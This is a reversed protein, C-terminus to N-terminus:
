SGATKNSVGDQGFMMESISVLDGSPDAGALSWAKVRRFYLQADSEVTFGVGGLVHIAATAAEMSYKMATLFAMLMLPPAGNPEYDAFWSAKRVLMRVAALGSHVDALRHSIAQFSGIPVGFASRDLGYQVALSLAGEGIGVLAASTLLKWELRAETILRHASDGEAITEQDTCDALSRFALPASGINKALNPPKSWSAIILKGQCLGLIADALAGAPILQESEDGTVSLAVTALRGDELVRSMETRGGEAGSRALLRSAVASEVFPVPALHRGCQEAVLCLDVLGAGEGGVSAPMSMSVGGSKKFIAWLNEDFGLPEASRVVANTSYKDLMSGFSDFLAQQEVDLSWDRYRISMARDSM